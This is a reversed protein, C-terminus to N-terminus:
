YYMNISNNSNNNNSNHIQTSGGRGEPRAGQSLSPPLAM